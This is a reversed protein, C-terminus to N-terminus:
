KFKRILAKIHTYIYCRVPSITAYVFELQDKNVLTDKKFMKYQKNFRKRIIKIYKNKNEIDDSQSLRTFAGHYLMTLININVEYAKNYGNEKFFTSRSEFADIVDLRKPNWKKGMIGNPNTYYYYMVKDVVAIKDNQFLLKYTTFEDEHIRGYPYRIDKWLNKRYLKGWAVIANVNEQVFFDEPNWLKVFSEDDQIKLDDEGTTEVYRCVSVDVNNDKVAKYLLKLYDKHVWDDSDIFTIWESNSNQFAWEIGANRADSLGGNSKHIVTIRNDKKAYEDCIKGCNDPSGDDVLIIEFDTFTQHLISDVCRNLYEEVKYVPVVVSILM